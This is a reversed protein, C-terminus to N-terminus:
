GRPDLAERLGDGVWTIAVVALTLAAGPAIAMLPDFRISNRAEQLLGGWSPTDGPVGLGLFSLSAESMMAYAMNLTASVIIVTAVNPLMHRLIIRADSAGIARAALIFERTKMSLFEGRVTRALWMWSLLALSLIVGAMSPSTLEAVILLLFIAPFALMLDVFRMVLADVRGGFYGSAAGAAIGIATAALSTLAGVALSIRGGFLLRSWRDQGLDDTGLWHEASPPANLMDLRNVADGVTAPPAIVPAFAALLALALVMAAGLVAPKSGGFRALAGLWPGRPPRGGATPLSAPRPIGGTRGATM